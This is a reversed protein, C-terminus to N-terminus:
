FMAAVAHRLRGATDPASREIHQEPEPLQPNAQLPTLPRQLCVNYVSAAHIIESGPQNGSGHRSRGDRMRAVARGAADFPIRQVGGGAPGLVRM